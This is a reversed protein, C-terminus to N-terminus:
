TEIRTHYTGWGMQTSIIVKRKSLTSTFRHTQLTPHGHDNITLPGKRPADFSLTKPLPVTIHLYTGYKPASRSFTIKDPYKDFTVIWSEHKASADFVAQQWVTNLQEWFMKENLVEQQRSPFRYISILLMTGLLVIVVCSEVLTFGAVQKLKM